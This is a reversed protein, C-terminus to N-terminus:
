NEKIGYVKQVVKHGTAPVKSKWDVDRNLIMQRVQTGSTAKGYSSNRDAVIIKPIVESFCKGDEFTGCYYVNIKNKIKKEVIDLAYNPWRSLNFIDNIPIIIPKIRWPFSEVMKKREEYSFPNNYTRKEQASGIGVVVHNCEDIIRDILQVHGFHFPQLRMIALGYNYRKLM